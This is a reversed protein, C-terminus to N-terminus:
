NQVFPYDVDAANDSAAIPERSSSSGVQHCRQHYYGTTLHLQGGGDAQKWSNQIRFDGCQRDCPPWSRVEKCTFTLDKRKM